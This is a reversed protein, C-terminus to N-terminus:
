KLPILRGRSNMIEIIISDPSNIYYINGYHWLRVKLLEAVNVYADAISENNVLARGALLESADLRASGYIFFEAEEAIGRFIHYGFDNWSTSFSLWSASLTLDIEAIHGTSLISLRNVRITDSSILSFPSNLRLTDLDPFAILLKPRPYDPLFRFSNLDTINLIGNHLAISINEVIRSNGIVTISHLSDNKLEIDFISSIVIKRFPGTLIDRHIKDDKFFIGEECASILLIVLLIWQIITRKPKIVKTRM